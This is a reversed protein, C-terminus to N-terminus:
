LTIDFCFIIGFSSLLFLFIVELCFFSSKIGFMSFNNGCLIMGGSVIGRVLFPSGTVSGGGIWDFLWDKLSSNDVSLFGVLSLHVFHDIFFEVRLM